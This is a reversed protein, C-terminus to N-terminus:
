EINTKDDSKKLKAKNINDNKNKKAIDIFTNDKNDKSVIDYITRQGM